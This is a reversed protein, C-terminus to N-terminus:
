ATADTPSTSHDVPSTPASAMQWWLGFIAASLLHWLGHFQFTADPDCTASATRGLLYSTAALAAVVIAAVGLRLQRAGPTRLRRRAIVVELGVVGLVGIATLAATADPVAIALVSLAASAGAWIGIVPLPRKRVLEADVLLMLVIAYAIPVDHAFRSGVPQPGHFLVSGLGVAILCASFVFWRARHDSPSRATMVGIAVGLVTYALSTIANVPQALAADRLRECDSAGIGGEALVTLVSWM